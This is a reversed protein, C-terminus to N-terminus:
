RDVESCREVAAKYAAECYNGYERLRVERELAKMQNEVDLCLLSGREVYTVAPLPPKPELPALECPRETVTVHEVKPMCSTMLLVLPILVLTLGPVNLPHPTEAEVPTLFARKPAAIVTGEEKVPPKVPDFDAAQELLRKGARSQLLESPKVFHYGKPHVYVPPHESQKEGGTARVSEMLARCVYGAAFAISLGLWILLIEILM